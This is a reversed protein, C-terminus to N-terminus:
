QLGSSPIRARKGTLADIKGILGAKVLSKTDSPPRGQLARYQLAAITTKRADRQIEVAAISQLRGMEADHQFTRRGIYSFIFLASMCVLVGIAAVLAAVVEAALKGVSLVPAKAEDHKVALPAITSNQWLAFLTEYVRYTHLISKECLKGVTATGDILSLVYESSNSLPSAPAPPAAPRNVVSFITNNSIHKRIRKWEDSRRMAEMTIADVPFSVGGVVYEQISELSDFRYNGDDWLFLGCALDEVGMQALTTLENTSLYKRNILEQSFQRMVGHCVYLLENIEEESYGRITKLYRFLFTQLNQESTGAAIVSGKSFIVFAENDQHSLVLQGTKADRSILQFIEALEFERLSGRLAM